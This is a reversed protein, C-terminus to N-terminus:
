QCKTSGYMATKNQELIEMISSGVAVFMFMKDLVIFAHLRLLVVSMELMGKAAAVVPM